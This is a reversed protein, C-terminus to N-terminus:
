EEAGDEAGEAEAGEAEAAKAAVAEEEAGEHFFLPYVFDSPRLETERVMARLAASKRNRRPRQFLNM